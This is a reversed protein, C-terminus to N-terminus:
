DVEVIANEMANSMFREFRSETDDKIQKPFERADIGRVFHGKSFVTNGSAGGAKSPIRSPSSKAKYQSKFALARKNRPAVFHGKTGNSVYGYIKNTTFVEGLIQRANSSVTRTFGPKNNWTKVTEQFDKQLRKTM